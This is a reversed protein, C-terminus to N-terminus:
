GCSWWLEAVRWWLVWRWRAPGLRALQDLKEAQTLANYYNSRTQTKEAVSMELTTSTRPATWGSSSPVFARAVVALAAALIIRPVMKPVRRTTCPNTSCAPRPAPRLRHHRHQHRTGAARSHQPHALPRRAGVTQPGLSSLLGSRAPPLM